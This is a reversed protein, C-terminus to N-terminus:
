CDDTEEERENKAIDQAMWWADIRREAEDEDLFDLEQSLKSPFYTYGHKALLPEASSALPGIDNFLGGDWEITPNSPPWLIRHLAALKGL